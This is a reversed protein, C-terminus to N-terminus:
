SPYRGHITFMRFIHLQIGSDGWGLGMIKPVGWVHPKVKHRGDLFCIMYALMLVLAFRRFIMSIWEKKWPSLQLLGYEIIVHDIGFRHKGDNIWM